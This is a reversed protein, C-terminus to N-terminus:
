TQRVVGHSIMLATVICVPLKDLIAIAGSRQRLSDMKMEVIFDSSGREEITRLTVTSRSQRQPMLWWLIKNDSAGFRAGIKM